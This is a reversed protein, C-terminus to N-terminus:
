DYQEGYLIRYAMVFIAPGSQCRQEAMPSSSTGSLHGTDEPARTNSPGLCGPTGRHGRYGRHGM